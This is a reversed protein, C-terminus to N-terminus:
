RIFFKLLSAICVLLFLGETFTSLPKKVFAFVSFFSLIAFILSFNELSQYLLMNIIGIALAVFFLFWLIRTLKRFRISSKQLKAQIGAFSVVFFIITTIGIAIVDLSKHQFSFSDFKIDWYYWNNFVLMSTIAYILPITFGVILLISERLVFPRVVWVMLFLFPIIVVFFPHFCTALGALLASNFVFKRGDENQNLQFIQNVLLLFLTHTFLFGDPNYMVEFLSMWVIYIFGPFFIVKDYVKQNNFIFNILLANILIFLGGLCTKLYPNIAKVEGWLGLDMESTLEFYPFLLNLAIFGVVVFPILFVTIIRYESFFRLM